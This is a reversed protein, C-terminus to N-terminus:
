LMLLLLQRRRSAWRRILRHEVRTVEGDAAEAVGHGCRIGALRSSLRPDATTVRHEAMMGIHRHSLGPLYSM